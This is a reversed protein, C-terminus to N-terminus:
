GGFGRERRHRRRRVRFKLLRMQGGIWALGWGLPVGLPAAAMAGLGVVIRDAWVAWGPGDYAVPDGLAWGMAARVPFTAPNLSLLLVLGSAWVVWPLARPRWHALGVSLLIGVAAEVGAWAMFFIVVWAWGDDSTWSSDGRLLVGPMELISRGQSDGGAELLFVAGVSAGMLLAGSLIRSLIARVAAATRVAERWRATLVDKRRVVGTSCEPCVVVPLGYQPETVARVRALDLGCSLCIHSVAM